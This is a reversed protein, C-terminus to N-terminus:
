ATGDEISFTLFTNSTGIFLGDRNPWRYETQELDGIKSRQHNDLEFTISNNLFMKVHKRSKKLSEHVSMSYFFVQFGYFAM